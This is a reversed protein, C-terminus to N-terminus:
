YIVKTYLKLNTVLVEKRNKEAKLVELRDKEKFVAEELEYYEETFAEYGAQCEAVLNKYVGNVLGLSLHLVPVIFHDIDVADFLLELDTKFGKRQETTPKAIEELYELYEMIDENTWEEGGVNRGKWESKSLKCFFCWWGSADERCTAMMFFKLDGAMWYEINTHHIIADNDNAESGLVAYVNGESSRCVSLENNAQKIRHLAENILPAFTNKLVKFSDGSCKASALIFNTEYEKKKEKWRVIISLVARLFKQGHDISVIADVHDYDGMGAKELEALHIKLVEDAKKGSYEIMVRDEEYNGHNPMEYGSGLKEKINCEAAFVPTGYHGRFGRAIIRSQNYTLNAESTIAFSTEEDMREISSLGEDRCVEKAIEKLDTTTMVLNVFSRKASESCEGNKDTGKIVETLFGTKRNNHKLSHFDKSRPITVCASKTPANRNNIFLTKSGTRAQNLQHLEKLLNDLVRPDAVPVLYTSLVPYTKPNVQFSNEQVPQGEVSANQAADQQDNLKEVLKFISHEFQRLNTSAEAIQNTSSPDLGLAVKKIIKKVVDDINAWEYLRRELQAPDCKVKQAVTDFFSANRNHRTRNKEVLPESLPYEKWPVSPKQGKKNTLVSKFARKVKNSADKARQTIVKLPSPADFVVRDEEDAQATEDYGNSSDLVIEISEDPAHDFSIPSGFSENCKKTRCLKTTPILSRRPAFAVIDDEKAELEFVSLLARSSSEREIPSDIHYRDNQNVSAAPPLPTKPSDNATPTFSQKHKKRHRPSLSFLIRALRSRKSQNDPSSLKSRRSSPSLTSDATSPTPLDQAAGHWELTTLQDWIM